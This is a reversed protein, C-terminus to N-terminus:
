SSTALGFGLFCFCSNATGALRRLLAGDERSIETGIWGHRFAKGYNRSYGVDIIGRSQPLDEPGHNRARQVFQFYQESIHERLDHIRNFTVHL